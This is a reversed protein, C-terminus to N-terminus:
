KQTILNCEIILNSKLKGTTKDSTKGVLVLKEVYKEELEKWLRVIVDKNWYQINEVWQSSFILFTM